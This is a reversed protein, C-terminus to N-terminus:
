AQPTFSQCIQLALPTLVLRLPPARVPDPLASRVWRLHLPLGVAHAGHAALLVTLAVVLLLAGNREM